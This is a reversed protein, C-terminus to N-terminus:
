RIVPVLIVEGKTILDKGPTKNNLYKVYYEADGIPVRPYYQKLIQDLNEDEVEIYKGPVKIEQNVYIRNLNKIEPNLNIIMDKVIHVKNVDGSLRKAIDNMKDGYLIRYTVIDADVIEGNYQVTAESEGEASISVDVNLKQDKIEYTNKKSFLEKNEEKIGGMEDDIVDLTAQVYDSGHKKNEPDSLYSERIKELQQLREQPSLTKGVKVYDEYMKDANTKIKEDQVTVKISDIEKDIMQVTNNVYDITHKGTKLEDGYAKKIADLRQIRDEMSFDGRKGAYNEFLRDAETKESIGAFLKQEDYVYSKLATKVGFIKNVYNSNEINIRKIHEAYEEPDGKFKKFYIKVKGPGRNYSWFAWMWRNSDDFSCNDPVKKGEWSYTLEYLDKLFKIAAITSKVPHTREDINRNVKLGYRRATSRIFQWYGRAGSRSKVTGHWHSETLALFVIDFPVGHKQTQEYIMQLHTNPKTHSTDTNLRNWGDILRQHLSRYERGKKRALERFKLEWEIDEGKYRKGWKEIMNENYDNGPPEIIQSNSFLKLYLEDHSPCEQETGKLVSFFMLVISVALLLTFYKNM